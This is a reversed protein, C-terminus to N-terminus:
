TGLTRCHFVTLAIDACQSGGPPRWPSQETLGEGGAEQESPTPAALGPGAEM